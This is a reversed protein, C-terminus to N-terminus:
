GGASGTLRISTNSRSLAREWRERTMRLETQSWGHAAMWAPGSRTAIVEAGFWSALRAIRTNASVTIGRIEQLSWDGFGFVLLARAVEIAYGFRGWYIPALEFSLEAIGAECGLGRLGCCGILAQPELRQIIALQYNRRPREYAWLKFIRLLSQAHGPDAEEPGCFALYRHDTHYALFAQQDGAIFDRILFRRTTIEM